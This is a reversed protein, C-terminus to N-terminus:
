IAAMVYDAIRNCRPDRFEYLDIDSLTDKLLDKLFSKARYLRIKVNEESIDLAAATETVSIGEILRMVFVTRYKDDLSDIASELIQKVNGRIIKQEQSLEMISELLQETAGDDPDNNLTYNSYRNNKKKRAFAENILIRTLWTSFQARGEFQDLNQFAKIYAEQMIDEVDAEERIISRAIKYLRSNYRRIIVEYLEKDGGLVADIVAQDTVDANAAMEVPSGNVDM